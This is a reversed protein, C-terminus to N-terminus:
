LTEKRTQNLADTLSFVTREPKPLALVRDRFDMLAVSALPDVEANIWEGVILSFVKHRDPGCNPDRDVRWAIGLLGVAPGDPYDKLKEFATSFAPALHRTLVELLGRVHALLTRDGDIIASAEAQVVAYWAVLLSRPTEAACLDLLAVFDLRSGPNRALALAGSSWSLGLYRLGEGIEWAAERRPETGAAYRRLVRDYEPGRQM